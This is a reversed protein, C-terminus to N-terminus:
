RASIFEYAQLLRATEIGDLVCYYLKRAEKAISGVAIELLKIVNSDISNVHQVVFLRAPEEVLRLIQDGNKGCKRVTLKGPTGNGKLMFAAPILKGQYRVDAYLDSREGGWDKPPSVSLIKCLAEKIFNESVNIPVLSKVEERSVTKVESFSDISEIYIREVNPKRLQITQHVQVIQKGTFIFGSDMRELVRRLPFGKVFDQKPVENLKFFQGGMKSLLDSLESESRPNKLLIRETLRLSFDDYDKWRRSLVYNLVINLIAIEISADIHHKL